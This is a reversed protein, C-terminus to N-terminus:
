RTRDFHSNMQLNRLSRWAAIEREIYPIQTSEPAGARAGFEQVGIERGFERRPKNRGLNSVGILEAKWARVDLGSRKEGEKEHESLTLSGEIYIQSGKKARAGISQAVEFAVVCVWQLVERGNDDQGV